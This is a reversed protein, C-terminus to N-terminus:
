IKGINVQTLAGSPLSHKSYNDPITINVGKGMNPIYQPWADTVTSSLTSSSIESLLPPSSAPSHSPSLSSAFIPPLTIHGPPTPTAPPFVLSLIFVTHQPTISM